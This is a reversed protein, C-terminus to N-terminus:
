PRPEGTREDLPLTIAVRPQRMFLVLSELLNEDVMNVAGGLRSRTSVM